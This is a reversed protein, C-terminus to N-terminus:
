LKELNRKVFESLDKGKLLNKSLLALDYIQRITSEQAAEDKDMRTGNGFDSAEALMYAASPYGGKSATELYSLAKAYNVDTGLGLYYAKGLLASVAPDSADAASAARFAGEYDGSDFLAAPTEDAYASAGAFFSLTMVLLLMATITRKM